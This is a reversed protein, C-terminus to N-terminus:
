ERNQIATVSATAMTMEFQILTNAKLAGKLVMFPPTVDIQSMDKITSGGTAWVIHTAADICGEPVQDSLFALGQQDSFLKVIGKM